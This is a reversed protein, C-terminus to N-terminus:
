SSNAEPLIVKAGTQAEIQQIFEALLVETFLSSEQQFQPRGIVLYDAEIEHCWSSIEDAVNGHRVVGQAEVGKAKAPSQATLLIFEGMQQMQQLITQVRSRITHDIFDVNVVYIFYLALGSQKALSIATEITPHSDPGGRVACVIGSM